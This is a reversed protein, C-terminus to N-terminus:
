PSVTDVFIFVIRNLYMVHTPELPSPMGFEVSSSINLYMVHTPELMAIPSNKIGKVYNLYMVHTPELGMGSTSSM